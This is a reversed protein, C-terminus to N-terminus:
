RLIQVRGHWGWRLSVNMILKISRRRVKKKMFKKLADIQGDLEKAEEQSLPKGCALIAKLKDTDAVPLNGVAQLIHPIQWENKKFQPVTALQQSSIDWAENAYAELAKRAPKAPDLVSFLDKLKKAKIEGPSSDLINKIHAVSKNSLDDGHRGQDIYIKITARALVQQKQVREAYHSSFFKRISHLLDSKKAYLITNGTNKEQYALILDSDRTKKFFDVLKQTPSYPSANASKMPRTGPFPLTSLVLKNASM